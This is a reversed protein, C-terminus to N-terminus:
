CRYCQLPLSRLRFWIIRELIHAGAGEDSAQMITLNSSGEGKHPFQQLGTSCRRILFTSDGGSWACCCVQCHIIETPTPWGNMLLASM